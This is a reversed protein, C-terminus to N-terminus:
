IAAYEMAHGVMLSNLANLLICLVDLSLRLMVCPALQVVDLVATAFLLTIESRVVDAMTVSFPLLVFLLTHAGQNLAKAKLPLSKDNEPPRKRKKSSSPITKTTSIPKLPNAQMISFTASAPDSFSITSAAKLPM